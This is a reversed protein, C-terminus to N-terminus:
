GWRESLRMRNGKKKAYIGQTFQGCALLAFGEPLIKM